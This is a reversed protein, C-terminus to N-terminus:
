PSLIGTALLPGTSAARFYPEARPRTNAPPPVPLKGTEGSSGARGAPGSESDPNNWRKHQELERRFTSVADRV